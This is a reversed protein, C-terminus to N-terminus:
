AGVLALEEKRVVEQLHEKVGSSLYIHAYGAEEGCPFPFNINTLHQQQQRDTIIEGRNFLELVLRETSIKSIDQLM